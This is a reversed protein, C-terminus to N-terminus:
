INLQRTRNRAASVSALFIKEFKEKNLKNLASETAGGRSAVANIANEPTINTSKLLLASGLFTHMVLKETAEASMGLRVGAKMLMKAILFFYAPGSGSIATVVDLQDENKLFVEIGIAELIQKVLKEQIKTVNRNKVWASASEGIQAALNPMVRVIAMDKGLKNEINKITVGAAISVILQNKKVSSSIEELLEQMKQPKVALIIIQRNKIAKLNNSTVLVGNNEFVKLTSLDLKTLALTQPQVIKKSLLGKAISVGMKGAGLIVITNKM